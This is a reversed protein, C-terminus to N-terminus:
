TKLYEEIILRDEADTAHQRITDQIVRFRSGIPLVKEWADDMDIKLLLGVNQMKVRTDDASELIACVVAALVTKAAGAVALRRDDLSLPLPKLGDEVVQVLLELQKDPDTTSNMRAEVNVLAKARITVQQKHQLARVAAKDCEISDLGTDRQSIALRIRINDFLKQHQQFEWEDQADIDDLIHVQEGRLLKHYWGLLRITAYYVHRLWSVNRIDQGAPWDIYVSMRLGFRASPARRYRTFFRICWPYAPSYREWLQFMLEELDDPAALVVQPDMHEPVPIEFPLCGEAWRNAGFLKKWVEFSDEFDSHELPVLTGNDIWRGPIDTDADTGDDLDAEEAQDPAERMTDPFVAAYRAQEQERKKKDTETEEYFAELFARSYPAGMMNPMPWRFGDQTKFVMAWAQQDELWHQYDASLLPYKRLQKDNLALKACYTALKGNKYYEELKEGAWKRHKEAAAIVEDRRKKEDPLLEVRIDPEM